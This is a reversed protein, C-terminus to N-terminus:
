FSLGDIGDTHGKKLGLKVAIRHSQGLRMASKGNLVRYVLQTSFGNERAWASISVGHYEFLKKVEEPTRLPIEQSMEPKNTVM